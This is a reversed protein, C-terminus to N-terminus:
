DDEKEEERRKRRQELEWDCAAEFATAYVETVLEAQEDITLERM